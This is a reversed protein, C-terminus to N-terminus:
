AVLHAAYERSLLTGALNPHLARIAPIDSSISLNRIVRLTMAEETMGGNEEKDSIADDLTQLIDRLNDVDKDDLAPRLLTWYFWSALEYSSVKQLQREQEIANSMEDQVLDVLFERSQPFRMWLLDGLRGLSWLMPEFM